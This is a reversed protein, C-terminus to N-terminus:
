YQIAVLAASADDLLARQELLTARMPEPWSRALARDFREETRRCSRRCAAVADGSNSLGLAGRVTKSPRTAGASRAPRDTTTHMM